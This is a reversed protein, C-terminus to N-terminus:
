WSGCSSSGDGVVGCHVDLDSAYRAFVSGSLYAELIVSDDYCNTEGGGLYCGIGKTNLDELISKNANYYSNGNEDKGGRVCIEQDVGNFKACAYSETVINNEVVHKLYFNYALTSPDEVYTFSSLEDGIAVAKTDWRYVVVPTNSDTSKTAFIKGDANYSVEYDGVKIKTESDTVVSGNSIKISGETPKNGSVEITGLKDDAELETLSYTGDALITGDLRKAAIAIEVADVYNEATREAAGKKANEIVNMVIPTAILAIIALIVIVALLEILTFGKKRM